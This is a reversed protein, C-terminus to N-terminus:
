NCGPSDGGPGSAFVAREFFPGLDVLLGSSTYCLPDNPTAAAAGDPWQFTGALDRYRPRRFYAAKSYGEEAFLGSGMDSSTWSAPTGDYVEGYVHVVCAEFMMMDFLESPYYGIWHKNHLVWWTGAINQIELLSEKFGGGIESTELVVGPGYPANRIPKFKNFGEVRGHWGGKYDGVAAGATLFEVQFRTRTPQLKTDFNRRDRSVAAGILELTTDPDPGQCVVAIEMVSMITEEVKGNYADIYAQVGLNQVVKNIGAYRRVQGQGQPLGPVSPVSNDIFDEVSSAEVDGFVYPAFSPRLMPVSNLPGQLEPNLDLETLQLEVDSPLEIDPLPPPEVESGPVSASDLWDWIDGSCTQTTELIVWGQEEYRGALFLDVEDKKVQQEPTYSTPILSPCARSPQPLLAPDEDLSTCGTVVTM